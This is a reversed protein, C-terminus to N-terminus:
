PQYTIIFEDLIQGKITKYYGHAKHQDGQYNFTIFLAGAGNIDAIGALPLDNARDQGSLDAKTCNNRCYRGNALITAWWGDYNHRWRDQRYRSQHQTFVDGIYDRMEFGGGLSSVIVMTRNPGLTLQEVPQVQAAPKGANPCNAATTTHNEVKRSPDREIRNRENEANNPGGNRWDGVNDLVCTRTYQHTNGNIVIAGAKACAQYLDYPLSSDPSPGENYAHGKSYVNFDLHNGHWLCLRWINSGPVDAAAAFAEAPWRPDGVQNQFVMSIGKYKLWYDGARGSPPKDQGQFTVKCQTHPVRFFEDSYIQPYKDGNGICGGWVAGFRNELYTLTNLFDFALRDANPGNPPGIEAGTAPGLIPPNSVYPNAQYVGLNTKLSNIWDAYTKVQGWYDGQVSVLEAGEKNILQLVEPWRTLAESDATFAMTVPTAKGPNSPPQTSTPSPPPSTPSGAQNSLFPIFIKGPSGDEEQGFGPTISTALLGSLFVVLM